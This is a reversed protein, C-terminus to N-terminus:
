FSQIIVGGNSLPLTVTAESIDEINDYDSYDAWLEEETTYESYECCIGVVDLETDESFEELFDFLAKLGEYSFQEYRGADQFAKIFINETVTIKM